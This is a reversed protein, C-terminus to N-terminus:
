LQQQEVTNGREHMAHEGEVGEFSEFPFLICVCVCVPSARWVNLLFFFFSSLHWKSVTAIFYFQKKLSKLFFIQNGNSSM